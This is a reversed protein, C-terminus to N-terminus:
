EGKTTKAATARYAPVAGFILTSFNIVHFTTCVVCFDDLLVKLARLNGRQAAAYLPTRGAFDASEAPAGADLM